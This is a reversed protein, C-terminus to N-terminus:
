GATMEPWSGPMSDRLVWRPEWAHLINCIDFALPAITRMGIM